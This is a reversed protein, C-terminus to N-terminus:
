ISSDRRPPQASHDSVDNAVVGVVARDRETGTTPRPPADAAARRFGANAGSSLSTVTTRFSDNQTVRDNQELNQEKDREEGGGHRVDLDRLRTIVHAINKVHGDLTHSVTNVTPLRHLSFTM